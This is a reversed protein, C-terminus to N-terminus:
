LHMFTACLIYWLLFLSSCTKIISIFELLFLWPVNKVSFCLIHIDTSFPATDPIFYMSLKCLRYIKSSFSPFSCDHMHVRLTISHVLLFGLSIYSYVPLALPHCIAPQVEIKRQPVSYITQAHGATLLQQLTSSRAHLRFRLKERLM